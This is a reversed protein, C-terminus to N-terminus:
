HYESQVVLAFVREPSVLIVSHGPGIRAPRRCVKEHGESRLDENPRSLGFVHNYLRRVIRTRPEGEEGKIQHCVSKLSRESLNM